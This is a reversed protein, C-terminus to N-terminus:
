PRVKPRGRRGPRPALYPQPLVDIHGVPELRLVVRYGLVRVIRLLTAITWGNPNDPSELRSITPQRVGVLDGLETQTLDSGERLRRVFDGLPKQCPFTGYQHEVPDPLPLELIRPPM